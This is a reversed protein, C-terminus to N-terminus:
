KLGNRCRQSSQLHLNQDNRLDEFTGGFYSSSWYAKKAIEIAVKKALTPTDAFVVVRAGKDTFPLRGDENAVEAEGPQINVACAMTEARFDQSARADVFVATDDRNFIYEFGLLDTQVTNGLARWVPLGLQYRRVHTYGNAPPVLLDAVRKSKGCFPGNCTLIFATEKNPFLEIIKEVEREPINIAGPIHSIAYELESRVDLVPESGTALIQQLEETSINDTKPSSEILKGQMINQAQAPTMVVTMCLLAVALRSALCRLLRTQRSM